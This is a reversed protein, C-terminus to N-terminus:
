RKEMAISCSVPSGTLVLWVTALPGPCPCSRARGPGFRYAGADALETVTTGAGDEVRLVPRFRGQLAGENRLAVTIAVESAPPYTDADTELDLAGLHTGVTSGVQNNGGTASRSRTPRISSPPLTIPALRSNLPMFSGSFAGAPLAGVTLDDERSGTVTSASPTFVCLSMVQLTVAARM